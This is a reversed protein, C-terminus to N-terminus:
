VHTTEPSATLPSCHEPDSYGIQGTLLPPRQLTLQDALPRSLKLRSPSFRMVWPVRPSADNVQDLHCRNVSVAFGNQRLDHALTSLEDGSVHVCLMKQTIHTGCQLSSTHLLLLFTLRRGSGGPNEILLAAKAAFCTPAASPGAAM